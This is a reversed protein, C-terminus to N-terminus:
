RKGNRVPRLQDDLVRGNGMNIFNKKTAVLWAIYEQREEAQDLKEKYEMAQVAANHAELADLVNGNKNDANFLRALIDTPEDLEGAHMVVFEQGTPTTEIIAYCKTIDDPTSRHEPPIWALYFSPDYDEVIRALREHKESVFRGDETPVFNM